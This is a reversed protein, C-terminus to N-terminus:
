VAQIEKSKLNHIMEKVMSKLNFNHNWSWDNRAEADDISQPWTNAIDQRFDPKFDVKFDPINKQIEESLERPNFSIAALNYSTRVKIADTDSEMVQITADIADDMYMMPLKTKEDLFCEYYEKERAEFFIEVAYDTTGGGPKTKWSIIGPYRVSRVDVGFNKHYYQNWFEGTLKSIGYVTTPDM